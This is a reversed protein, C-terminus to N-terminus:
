VTGKLLKFMQEYTIKEFAKIHSTMSVNYIKTAPHKFNDFDRVNSKVGTDNMYVSPNRVGVSTYNIKDDQYYHTNLDNTSSTGYDYGLLFITDYDMNYALSLALMGSLGMAGGYLKNVEIMKKDYFEDRVMNWQKIVPINDYVPKAKTHCEIGAKYLAELEDMNSKFFTSDVWIQKSPLYPMTKFAYNISWIDQCHIQHWLDQEIGEKISYGGGVLIVSKM